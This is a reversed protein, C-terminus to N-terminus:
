KFPRNLWLLQQAHLTSYSQKISRSLVESLNHQHHVHTIILWAKCDHSQLEYVCHSLLISEPKGTYQIHPTFKTIMM